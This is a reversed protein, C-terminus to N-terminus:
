PSPRQITLRLTSPRPPRTRAWFRSPPPKSTITFNRRSVQRPPSQGLRTVVPRPSIHSRRRANLARGVHSRLPSEARVQTGGWGGSGTGAGLGPEMIKPGEPQLRLGVGQGESSPRHRKRRRCVTISTISSALTGGLATNMITRSTISMPRSATSALIRRRRRALPAIPLSRRMIPPQEPMKRLQWHTIPRPRRM